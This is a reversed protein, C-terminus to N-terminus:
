VSIVTSGVYINAFYGSAGVTDTYNLLTGTVTETLTVNSDTTPINKGVNLTLSETPATNDTFVELTTKITLSETPATNDTFASLYLVISTSDSATISDTFNKGLSVTISDSTSATDTGFDKKLGVIATDLAKFSDQLEIAVNSTTLISINAAINATATITRNNFLRTGAPHVLKLVTDYFSSIDLESQLEYAFPQYQNVDQLRVEPESLFGKSSIYQGPYKAIAGMTFNIIAVTTDAATSSFTDGNTNTQTSKAYALRTGTYGTAVYDSYFYRAVNPSVDPSMMTFEDTFGTSYTGFTESQGITQLNKYLNITIDSTFGYGYNLIKLLTISGNTDTRLIRVLSDVGGGANIQFIQGVKFGSGGYSITYGTTTPRIVGAFINKTGDSVTVSDGVTYPATSTSKLFIEYLGPTLAKVRVIPENYPIGNKQYSLYRDLIDTVNGSSLYVRISVRQEWTGDSPRLAYDYPHSVIVDSDYILRFLLKFSLDSGKASYLDSIKKVLMRKNALANVPIDKIYTSLFYQVFDSTTTDIDNYSRANQVLELAGSDQELFQYYAEVFTTFTSYNERIFEPLQGTVLQSVKEKIRSM